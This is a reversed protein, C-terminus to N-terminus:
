ASDGLALLPDFFRSRMRRARELLECAESWMWLRPDGSQMM